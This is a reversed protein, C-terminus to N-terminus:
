AGTTLIIKGKTHGKESEAHAAATESLPYEKDIIVKLHGADVLGGMEQLRAGNSQLMFHKGRVGNAAAAKEDIGLTSVLMGDKKILGWSKAQTDGAITDFVFDLDHVKTSFDEKTYDIVEDAGLSRVLEINTTSTTAIVHAGAYKALQVAFTGVGGSGGHILLSMGARLKGVEFLGAWATMGALPIAAATALSISKPAYAAEAARVVVYEAYAGSETTEIRAFIPDGKTFQTVLRGTEVVVGSVDWGIITPFTRKMNPIHGQRYKWDIPNISAASVKVLLEDPGPVPMDADEYKLVEPGGFQYMKVAKM